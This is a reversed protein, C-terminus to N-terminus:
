KHMVEYLRKQEMMLKCDDRTLVAYKYITEISGCMNLLKQKLASNQSEDDELLVAM